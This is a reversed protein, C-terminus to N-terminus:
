TLDQQAPSVNRSVNDTASNGPRRRTSVESEVGVYQVVLMVHKHDVGGSENRAM